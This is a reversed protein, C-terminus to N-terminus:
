PYGTLTGVWERLHASRVLAKFRNGSLFWLAWAADAAPAEAFYRKLAAVKANTKNSEDLEIFLQTFRRM